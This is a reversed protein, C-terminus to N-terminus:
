FVNFTMVVKDDGRLAKKIKQYSDSVSPPLRVQPLTPSSKTALHEDVIPILREVVLAVTTTVAERQGWSRLLFWLWDTASITDGVLKPFPKYLKPKYWLDQLDNDDIWRKIDGVNVMGHVVNVVPLEVLDGLTSVLSNLMSHIADQMKQPSRQIHALWMLAGLWMRVSIFFQGFRPLSALGGADQEAETDALQQDSSQGSKVRSQAVLSRPPCVVDSDTMGLLDVWAEWRPKTRIDKAFFRGVHEECPLLGWLAAVSLLCKASQVRLGEALVALPLPFVNHQSGGEDASDVWPIPLVMWRWSFVISDTPSEMSLIDHKTVDMTTTPRVPISLQPRIWHLFQIFEAESVHQGKATFDGQKVAKSINQLHIQAEKANDVRLINAVSSWKMQLEATFAMTLVTGSAPQVLSTM